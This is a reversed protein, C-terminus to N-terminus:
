QPPKDITTRVPDCGSKVSSGLVYELMQRAESATLLNTGFRQHPYNSDTVCQDSCVSKPLKWGLFRTVLAELPAETEPHKLTAIQGDAEYALRLIAHDGNTWDSSDTGAYEQLIKCVREAFGEKSAVAPKAVRADEEYATLRDPGIQAVIKRLRDLEDLVSRLDGATLSPRTASDSVNWDIGPRFVAAQDPWASFVRRLEELSTNRENSPINTAM